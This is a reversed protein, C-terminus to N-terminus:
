LKLEIEHKLIISNEGILPIEPKLKRSIDLANHYLNAMDFGRKQYFGISNINDNTTIAIVKICKHKKAINVVRDILETGIGKKQDFSDISIIECIENEINYTIIGFITNNESAIIGDAKSMDIIKGRVVMETTYWHESIISNILERNSKDISTYEM